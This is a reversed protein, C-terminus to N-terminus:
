WSDYQASPIVMVYKGQSDKLRDYQTSWSQLYEINAYGRWRRLVAIVYLCRVIYTRHTQTKM